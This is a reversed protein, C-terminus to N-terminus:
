LALQYKRYVTWDNNQQLGLTGTCENSNAAHSSYLQVGWRSNYAFGWCSQLANCTRRGLAVCKDTPYRCEAAVGDVFDSPRGLYGFNNAAVQCGIHDPIMEYEFAAAPCIGGVWGDQNAEYDSDGHGACRAWHRCSGNIAWLWVHCNAVKTDTSCLSMCQSETYGTGHWFCGEADENGRWRAGSISTCAEPAREHSACCLVGANSGTAYAQTKESNTSTTLEWNDIDVGLEAGIICRM